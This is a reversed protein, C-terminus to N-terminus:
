PLLVENDTNVSDLINLENSKSWEAAETYIFFNEVHRNNTKIGGEGHTHTDAQRDTKRDIRRGTQLNSKTNSINIRGQSYLQRNPWGCASAPRPNFVSV